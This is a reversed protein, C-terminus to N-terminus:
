WEVVVVVVIVDDLMRTGEADGEERMERERECSNMAAIDRRTAEELKLSSASLTLCRSSLAVSVTLAARRRARWVM